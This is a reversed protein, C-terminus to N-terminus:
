ITQTYILYPYRYRVGFRLAPLALHGRAHRASRRVGPSLRGPVRRTRVDDHQGRARLPHLDRQLRSLLSLSILFVRSLSLTLSLSPSLSLSLSLSPSVLSLSLYHHILSIAHACPHRSWVFAIHIDSELFMIEGGNWVLSMFCVISLAYELSDFRACVGQDDLSFAVYSAVCKPANAVLPTSSPFASLVMSNSNSNAISISRSKADDHISTSYEFWCAHPPPTPLSTVATNPAMIADSISSDTMTMASSSNSEMESDPMAASLNSGTGSDSIAALSNSEMRSDPICVFAPLPPALSSALEFPEDFHFTFTSDSPHALARLLVMKPVSVFVFIVSVAFLVIATLVVLFYDQFVSWICASLLFRSFNLPFTHTTYSEILEAGFISM